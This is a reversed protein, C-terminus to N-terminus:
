TAAGEMTCRLFVRTRLSESVGARQLTISIAVRRVQDCQADNLTAAMAANSEDYAQVSFSTVDSLLVRATGGNEQFMLDDGSVYLASTTNWGITSATVYQVDPSVSGGGELGVKRLERDIRDIAISLESHLQARTAAEIYGGVATVMMVSAVSGVAGLVVITTILEILTFARRHRPASSPM